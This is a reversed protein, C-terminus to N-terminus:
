GSKQKLLDRLGNLWKAAETAAESGGHKDPHLLRLMAKLRADDLGLQEMAGLASRAQKLSEIQQRLATVERLLAAEREAARQDAKPVAVPRAKGAAPAVSKFFDAHLTQDPVAANIFQTIETEAASWLMLTASSGEVWVVCAHVGIDILERRLKNAPRAKLKTLPVDAFFVVPGTEFLFRSRCCAVARTAGYTDLILAVKGAMRKPAVEPATMKQGRPVKQATSRDTVNFNQRRIGPLKPLSFGVVTEDAVVAPSFWEANQWGGLALLPPPMANEPASDPV